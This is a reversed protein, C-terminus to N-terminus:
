LLGELKIVEHANGICAFVGSLVEESPLKMDPICIARIGARQAAILGNESDEFIVANEKSTDGLAKIFIDPEPKSHTVTEGGTLETFYQLLGASELYSRIYKTESSSAVVCEVKNRYLYELLERIGDKVPLGSEALVAMASRAAASNEKFPYGEGYVSKMYTECDKYSLGLTHSYIEETITYGQKQAIESLCRMFLRESDFILGDMDFIAKKLMIIMGSLYQIEIKIIANIRM